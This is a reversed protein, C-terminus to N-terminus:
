IQPLQESKNPVPKAWGFGTFACLLFGVLDFHKVPNLTLRGTLKATWDGNKYAAFAHAYEHPVLVFLIAIVSALLTIIYDIM